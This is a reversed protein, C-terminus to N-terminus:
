ADWTCYAVPTGPSGYRYADAAFAVVTVLPAMSDIAVPEGEVIPANELSQGTVGTSSRTQVGHGLNSPESYSCPQM